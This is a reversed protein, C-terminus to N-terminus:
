KPLYTGKIGQAWHATQNVALQFIVEPLSNVFQFNRRLVVVKIVLQMHCSYYIVFLMYCICCTSAQKTCSITTFKTVDTTFDTTYKVHTQQKQNQSCSMWATQLKCWIHDDRHLFIWPLTDFALRTAYTACWVIIHTRSQLMMKSYHLETM